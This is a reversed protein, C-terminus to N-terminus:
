RSFQKCMEAELKVCQDSNFPGTELEYPKCDTKSIMCIFQQDHMKDYMANDMGTPQALPPSLSTIKDYVYVGQDSITIAPTMGHKLSGNHSFFKGM